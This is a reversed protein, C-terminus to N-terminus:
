KINSTNLITHNTHSWTTLQLDLSLNFGEFLSKLQMLDTITGVSKSLMEAEFGSSNSRALLLIEVKVVNTILLFCPNTQITRQFTTHNHITIFYTVGLNSVKITTM